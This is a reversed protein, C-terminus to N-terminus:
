ATKEGQLAESGAPPPTPNGTILQDYTCGFFKILVDRVEDGPSLIGNEYRRITNEDKSVIEALQAQTLGKALRLGRLGRLGKIIEM